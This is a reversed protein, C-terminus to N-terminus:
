AGNRGNPRRLQATEPRALDVGLADDPDLKLRERRLASAVLSILTRQGDLWGGRQYLHPNAEALSHVVESKTM